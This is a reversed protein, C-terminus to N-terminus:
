HVDGERFRRLFRAEYRILVIAGCASVILSAAAALSPAAALRASAFAGCLVALAIASAVFLVHVHKLSM